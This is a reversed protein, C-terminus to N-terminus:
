YGTILDGQRYDNEEEYEDELDDYLFVNYAYTLAWADTYDTSRKLRKRIDDKSRLRFRGSTDPPLREQMCLEENFEKVYPIYYPQDQIAEIGRMYMEARKDYYKDEDASGGFHVGIAIDGWKLSTLRDVVGPNYGKDIFVKVPKYTQMFQVVKQVIQDTDLGQFAFFGLVERGKRVCFVTKDKGSGAVDVGIIIRATDTIIKKEYAKALVDKDILDSDMSASFAESPCAPYEQCFKVLGSMGTEKKASQFLAIKSSRWLMQEDSLDYEKQYLKDSEGLNLTKVLESRYDKDWFWPIFIIEFDSQMGEEPMCLEYFMNGTGNATSEILVETNPMEPVTQMIGTMLKTANEYFAFESMHLLQITDSRGIEGSGATGVGYGSDNDFVLRKANDELKVRKLPEPLNQYYREVLAYLNSTADERHAIIFAKLGSNFLVQDFYRAAIYTSIGQQRAKLIVARVKGTRKKMDELKNHLYMQAFNLKFPVAGGVKPRIKYLTECRLVFDKKLENIKEIIQPDLQNM